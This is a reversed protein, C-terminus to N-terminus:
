IAIKRYHSPSFGVPTRDTISGEINGSHDLGRAYTKKEEM